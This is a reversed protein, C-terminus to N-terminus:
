PAYNLVLLDVFWDIKFVKQPLMGGSGGLLAGFIKKASGAEFFIQPWGAVRGSLFGPDAGTVGHAGVLARSYTASSIAGHSGRCKVVNLFEIKTSFVSLLLVAQIFEQELM